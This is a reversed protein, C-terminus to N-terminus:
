PLSDTALGPQGQHGPRAELAPQRRAESGGAERRRLQPDEGGSGPLAVSGREGNTEVGGPPGPGQDADPRFPSPPAASPCGLTTAVARGSVRLCGQSPPRCLVWSGRITSNQPLPLATGSESTRAFSLLCCLSTM